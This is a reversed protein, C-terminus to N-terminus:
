VMNSFFNPSRRPMSSTITLLLLNWYSSSTLTRLADWYSTWTVIVTCCKSKRVGGGLGVRVVVVCPEVVQAQHLAVGICVGHPVHVLPGDGVHWGDLLLSVPPSVDVQPDVVGEVLLQLDLHPDSM